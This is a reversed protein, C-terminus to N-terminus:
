FTAKIIKKQTEPNDSRLSLVDKGNFEGTKVVEFVDTPEPHETLVKVINAASTWLIRGDTCLIKANLRDNFKKSPLIKVVEVAFKDGIKLFTNPTNEDM